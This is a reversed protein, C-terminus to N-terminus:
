SALAVPSVRSATSRMLGINSAARFSAPSADAPLRRSLDGYMQQSMLRLMLCCVQLQEPSQQLWSDRATATTPARFRSASWFLSTGPSKSASQFCCEGDNRPGIKSISILRSSDMLISSSAIWLRVTCGLSIEAALRCRSSFCRVLGNLFLSGNNQVDACRAATSRHHGLILARGRQNALRVFALHEKCLIACGAM